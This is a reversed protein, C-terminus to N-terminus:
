SMKKLTQDGCIVFKSYTQFVVHLVDKIEIDIFIPPEGNASLQPSSVSFKRGRDKALLM